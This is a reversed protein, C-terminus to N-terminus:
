FPLPDDYDPQSTPPQQQLRDNFHIMLLDQLDALFSILQHAERPTYNLRLIANKTTM